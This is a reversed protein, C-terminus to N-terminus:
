KRMRMVYLPPSIGGEKEFKKWVKQMLNLFAKQLQEDGIKKIIKPMVEKGEDITDKRLQGGEFRRWEIDRFGVLKAAFELEGPYIETYHEGDVLEAVAKYMQWRMVQVEEEPKTAKPLPYEESIILLGGKKLTRYFESLGRLAKLPRHNLACLTATCVILDMSESKIQSMNTLDAKVFEVFRALEGLKKKVEPFTEPDIDISIVNGKGGGEMLKRALLMTAKGAGTAADMITLGSFNIDKFMYGAWSVM